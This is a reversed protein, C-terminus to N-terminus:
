EDYHINMERYERELSHVERSVNDLAGSVSDIKGEALRLSEVKDEVNKLGSIILNIQAETKEKLVELHQLNNLREIAITLNKELVSKLEEDKCASIRKRLRKPEERIADSDIQSLYKDLRKQNENIRPFREELIVTVDREFDGALDGGADRKRRIASRIREAIAKAESEHDPAKLLKLPEESPLVYKKELHRIGKFVGYLIGGGIMLYGSVYILIRFLTAM